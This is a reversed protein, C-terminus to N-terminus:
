HNYKNLSVIEHITKHLNPRSSLKLRKPSREKTDFSNKFFNYNKIKYM